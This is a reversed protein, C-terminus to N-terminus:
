KSPPKSAGSGDNDYEEDATIRTIPEVKEETAYRMKSAFSWINDENISSSRVLKPVYNELDNRHPSVLNVPLLTSM